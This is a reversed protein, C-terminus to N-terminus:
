LRDAFVKKVKEGTRKVKAKTQDTKGKSKLKRNGTSKGVAEKAKGKTAHAANRAALKDSVM